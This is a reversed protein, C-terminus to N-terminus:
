SVLTTKNIIVFSRLAKGTSNLVAIVHDPLSGPQINRHCIITSPILGRFKQDRLNGHMKFFTKPDFNDPDLGDTEQWVEKLQDESGQM